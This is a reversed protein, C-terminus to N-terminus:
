SSEISHKGILLRTIADAKDSAPMADADACAGTIAGMCCRDQTIFPWNTGHGGPPPICGSAMTGFGKITGPIATPAAAPAAAPTTAPVAAPTPAPTAAPASTTPSGRMLRRMDTLDGRM